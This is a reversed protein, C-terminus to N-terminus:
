HSETDPKICVGKNEFHVLDESETQYWYKLGHVAGWPCWQYFLHWKGDHYVFGNPDNLLGTIPQIHFHQRYHTLKIRNYLPKIEDASKLVIYREEKTWIKM